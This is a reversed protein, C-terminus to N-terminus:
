FKPFARSIIIMLILLVIGCVVVEVGIRAYWGREEGTYVDM